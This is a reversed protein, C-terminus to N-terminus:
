AQPSRRWRWAAYIIMGFGFAASVVARGYRQDFAETAAEILVVLGVLLAFPVESTYAM